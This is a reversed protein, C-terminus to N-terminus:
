VQCFLELSFGPEQSGLLRSEISLNGRNFGSVSVTSNNNYKNIARCSRCLQVRSYQLHISSDRYGLVEVM